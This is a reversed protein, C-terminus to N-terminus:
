YIKVGRTSVHLVKISKLNCIIFIEILSHLQVHPDADKDNAYVFIGFKRM